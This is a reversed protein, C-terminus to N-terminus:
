VFYRSLALLGQSNGGSMTILLCDSLNNLLKLVIVSVIAMIVSLSMGAIVKGVAIFNYKRVESM